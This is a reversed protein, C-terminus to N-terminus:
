DFPFRARIKQSFPEGRALCAPCACPKRGKASPYYRWGTVQRVPRISTIDAAPIPGSLIAEFGLRDPAAMLARVAMDATGIAHPGGYVGFLAPAGGDVRFYVAMLTKGQHCRRLERLWQHSAYFDPTAPMAYVGRSKRGAKLGNRRIAGIETEPAFHVFMAM